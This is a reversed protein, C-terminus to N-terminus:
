PHRPQRDRRKNERYHDRRECYDDSAPTATLYQSLYNGVKEEEAERRKLMKATAVYPFFALSKDQDRAALAHKKCFAHEALDASTVFKGTIERLRALELVMADEPQLEFKSGHVRCTLAGNGTAESM